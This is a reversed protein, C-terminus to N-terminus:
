LRWVQVGQANLAAMDAQCKVDVYLGNPEIKAVFDAVSRRKYEGHAVAAIGEGFASAAGEARGEPRM